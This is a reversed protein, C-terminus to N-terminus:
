APTVRDRAVVGLLDPWPEVTRGGQGLLRNALDDATDRAASNDVIMHAVRRLNEMLVIRLTIPVAWLEGIAM